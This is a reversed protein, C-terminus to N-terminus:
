TKSPIFLWCMVMWRRQPVHVGDVALASLLANYSAVDTIANDPWAGTGDWGVTPKSVGRSSSIIRFLIKIEGPM